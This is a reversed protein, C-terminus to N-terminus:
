WEEIDDDELYGLCTAQENSTHSQGTERIEDEVRDVAEAEIDGEGMLELEMSDRGFVLESFARHGHPARPGLTRLVCGLETAITVRSWLGTKSVDAHMTAHYLVSCPVYM